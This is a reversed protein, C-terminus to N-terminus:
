TSVDRMNVPRWLATAKVAPPTQGIWLEFALSAQHILMGSGNEARAGAARAAVMFGTEPPNYALELAVCGPSYCGAHVDPASGHHGMSTANVILAWHQTSPQAAQVLEGCALATRPFHPQLIAVLEQAHAPTRNLVLVSSAGMSGLAWVTARAAGGAGLVMDWTLKAIEGARLGAKTSLLVILRNRLPLRTHDAFFLLDDIHDTSLIKAQKGPM